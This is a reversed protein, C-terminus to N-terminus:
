KERDIRIGLPNWFSGIPYIYLHTWDTTNTIELLSWSHLLIRFFNFRLEKWYGDTVSADM